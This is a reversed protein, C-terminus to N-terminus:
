RAQKQKAPSPTSFKAKSKSVKAAKRETEEQERLAKGRAELRRATPADIERQMDLLTSLLMQQLLREVQPRVWGYRVRGRVTLTVETVPQNPVARLVWEQALEELPGVAGVSRWGGARSSQLGTYEAEFKLGGLRRVLRFRTRAGNKLTQQDDIWGSEAMNSDWAARRSPVLALRYLVEPRARMPMTQRLQIREATPVSAAVGRVEARTVETRAAVTIQEKQKAGEQTTDASVAVSPRFLQRLARFM